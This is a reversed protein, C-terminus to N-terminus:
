KKERMSETLAQTKDKSGKSSGLWFNLVQTFGAGLSGLLILAIERSGEPISNEMVHYLVFFFGGCVVLSIIASAYSAGHGAKALDSTLSRASKRDDAAIEDIKIDNEALQRKFDYEAKKLASYQDPSLQGKALQEAVEEETMGGNGFVREGILKAAAGGLPGGLATGVVPAAVRLIEKASEWFDSM